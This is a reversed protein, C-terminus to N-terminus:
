QKRRKNGCTYTYKSAWLAFKVKARMRESSSRGNRKGISGAHHIPPELVFAHPARTVARRRLHESYALVYGTCRRRVQEFRYSHLEAKRPIQRKHLFRISSFIILLTIWSKNCQLITSIDFCNHKDLNQCLHHDHVIVNHHKAFRKVLRSPM